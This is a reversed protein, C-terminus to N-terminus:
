VWNLAKELARWCATAPPASTLWTLAIPWYSSGVLVSTVGSTLTQTFHVCASAASHICSGHSPLETCDDGRASDRIAVRATTVDGLERTEAQFAAQAKKQFQCNRGRRGLLARAM